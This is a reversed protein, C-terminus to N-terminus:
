IAAKLEMFFVECEVDAPVSDSVPCGSRNQKRKFTLELALILILSMKSTHALNGGGRYGFANRGAERLCGLCRREPRQPLSNRM